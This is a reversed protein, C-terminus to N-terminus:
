YIELYVKKVSENYSCKVSLNLNLAEKIIWTNIFASAYSTYDYVSLKNRSIFIAKIEDHDRKDRIINVLRYLQEITDM